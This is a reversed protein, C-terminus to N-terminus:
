VPFTFVAQEALNGQASTVGAFSNRGGGFVFNTADSSQTLTNRYSATSFITSSSSFRRPMRWDMGGCLSELQQETLPTLKIM